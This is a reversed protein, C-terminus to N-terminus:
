CEIILIDPIDALLDTHHELIGIVLKYRSDHFFIDCETGLIVTYLRRLDTTAYVIRKTTDTHFREAIMCRM